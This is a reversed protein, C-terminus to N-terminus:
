NTPHTHSVFQSDDVPEDFRLSIEHVRGAVYRCRVVTAQVDVWANNATVLQLECPTGLHLFGNNLFSLGGRSLNRTVVEVTRQGGGPHTVVIKMPKRWTRRKARREGANTHRGEAEDLSNLLQETDGLRSGM